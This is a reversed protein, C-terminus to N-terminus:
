YFMSFHIPQKPKTYKGEVLDAKELINVIMKVDINYPHIEREMPAGM